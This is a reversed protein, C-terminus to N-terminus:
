IEIHKDPRKGAFAIAYELARRSVESFDYPILIKTIRDM